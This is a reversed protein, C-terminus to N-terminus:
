LVLVSGQTQGRHKNERRAKSIRRIPLASNTRPERKFFSSFMCTEDTEGGHKNESIAKSIRHIPLTSNTRPERKHIYYM